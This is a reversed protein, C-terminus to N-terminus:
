SVIAVRCLRWEKCVGCGVFAVGWLRWVVCVACWVCAMCCLKGLQPVIHRLPLLSEATVVAVVRPKDVLALQRGRQPHHSITQLRGGDIEEHDFVVAPMSAGDGEVVEDLEADRQLRQGVGKASVVRRLVSPDVDM